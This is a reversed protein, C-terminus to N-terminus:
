TFSDAVPCKFGPVVDEGDLVDPERLILPSIGLRHATVTKRKPHVVWVLRTGSGLYDTVKEEIEKARDTPSVVEVALDPPGEWFGSTESGGTLRSAAVFAIDAARVTDPNRELTFGTEAGLVIGLKHDDVHIALKKALRMIVRGHEFGAPAMARLEGRVLERRQDNPMKLLDEATVLYTSRSM